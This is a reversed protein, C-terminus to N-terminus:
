SPTQVLNNKHASYRRDRRSKTEEGRRRKAERRAEVGDITRTTMKEDEDCAERTGGRSARSASSRAPRRARSTSRPPPPAVVLPARTSSSSSSVARSFVRALSEAASPSARVRSARPTRSRPRRTRTHPSRKLRIGHVRSTPSRRSRRRHSRIPVVRRTADSRAFDRRPQPIRHARTLPLTLTFVIARHPIFKPTSAPSRSSPSRLPPWANALSKVLCHFRKSSRARASSKSSSTVHITRVASEDVGAASARPHHIGLVTPSRNLSSQNSPFADFEGDVADRPRVVPPEFFRGRMAPRFQEVRTRRQNVDRGFVRAIRPRRHHSLQPAAGRNAPARRHWSSVKFVIRLLGSPGFKTKPPTFVGLKDASELHKSGHGSAVRGPQRLGLQQKEDAANPIRQLAGDRGVHLVADRPTSPLRRDFVKLREHESAVSARRVHRVNLELRERWLRQHGLREIYLRRATADATVSSSM